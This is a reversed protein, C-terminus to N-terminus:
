SQRVQLRQRVWDWTRALGERMDVKAEWGFVERARDSSLISVAVDGHRAPVFEKRIVRGSTEEIMAIIDMVSHGEGSSVNVLHSGPRDCSLLMMEIVDDVYIYDRVTEGQGFIRLPRDFFTCGMAVAVIGQVGLPNQGPGYPNSIRLIDVDLSSVRSYFRLYNEITLKSQGYSSKPMLSHDEVIPTAQPEGYITGGSSAYVIKRVNNSLCTEVLRITPLLNSLLDYVSSELTMGPFTTSVLHFVTDVGQTAERLAVDDMFDGYVLDIRDLIDEVNLVDFSPRTFIRPSDGRAVLARALNSGIFGAGGLIVSTAM